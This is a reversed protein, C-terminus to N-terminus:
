TLRSPSAPVSSTPNTYLVSVSRRSAASLAFYSEVLTKLRLAFMKGAPYARSMVHGCQTYREIRASEHLANQVNPCRTVHPRLWSFHFLPRLTPNLVVFVFM